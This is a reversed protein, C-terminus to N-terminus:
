HKKGRGGGRGRSRYLVKQNARIKKWYAAEEEGDLVDVTFRAKKGSNEFPVESSTAAAEKSDGADDEPANEGNNKMAAIVADRMEPSHMRVYGDSSGSAFDIFKVRGYQILDAKIDERTLTTDETKLTLILGKTYSFDEDESADDRKRKGTQSPDFPKFDSQERWQKRQRERHERQKALFEDLSCTMFEEGAFSFKCALATQLQAVSGYEVFVSGIFQKTRNDRRMRVLLVECGEPTAFVEQLKELTASEDVNSAFMTRERSDDRSQMSFPVARRLATKEDNVLVSTSQAMVKAVVAPDTTMAQLRKFTLLVSIPVSGDASENAHERLYRDKRFNADSFYFEIQRKVAKETGTLEPTTELKESNAPEQTAPKQATSDAEVEGAQAATSAVVPAGDEGKLKKAAPTSESM